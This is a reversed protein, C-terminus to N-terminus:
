IDIIKKWKESQIDEKRKLLIGASRLKWKSCQNYKLISHLFVSTPFILRNSSCM